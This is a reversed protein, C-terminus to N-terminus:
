RVRPQIGEDTLPTMLQNPEVAGAVLPTPRKVHHNGAHKGAQDGAGFAALEPEERVLDPWTLKRTVMEVM